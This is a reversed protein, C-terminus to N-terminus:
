YLTTFIKYAHFINEARYIGIKVLMVDLLYFTPILSIKRTIYTSYQEKRICVEQEGGPYPQKEDIKDFSGNFSVKDCPDNSGQITNILNNETRNSGDKADLQCEDKLYIFYIDKPLDLWISSM